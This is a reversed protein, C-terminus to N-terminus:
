KLALNLYSSINGLTFNYELAENETSGLFHALAECGLLQLPEFVPFQGSGTSTLKLHPTIPSGGNQVLESLSFIPKINWFM